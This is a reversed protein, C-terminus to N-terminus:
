DSPWIQAGHLIRVIYLVQRVVQYVLIYPLSPFILERTGPKRGQRGRHPFHELSGAMQHIERVLRPANEPTENFLYDAINELDSAAAKTWRVQM